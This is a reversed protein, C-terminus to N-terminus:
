RALPFRGLPQNLWQEFFLVRGLQVVQEGFHVLAPAIVHRGRILILSGRVHVRALRVQEIPSALQEQVM